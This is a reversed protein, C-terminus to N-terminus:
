QKNEKRFRKVQLMFNIIPAMFVAISITEWVSWGIINMDDGFIFPLISFILGLANIEWLKNSRYNDWAKQYPTKM